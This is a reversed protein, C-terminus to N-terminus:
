NRLQALGEGNNLYQLYRHHRLDFPIDDAIQTIPIVHKGLTHAIGAEYFVNPNRGTFDCVVIFSRFLLSFVDQIVTSNIWIDDVRQCTMRRAEAARRIATHAGSFSAGFPMMASLLMPDPSADPVAFVSPQFIIRPATPTPVSSINVGSEDPYRLDAYRLIEAYNAPNHHIMAQLVALAHGGYDDDRHSLSRLLRHHHKVLDACDTLLGLEHWDGLNFKAVIREKLALLQRPSVTDSM